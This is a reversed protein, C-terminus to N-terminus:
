RRRVTIEYRIMDLENGGRPIVSALTAVLGKREYEFSSGSFPDPPLSVEGVESLKQPLLGQHLAAYVRLAEVCQLVALNADLRKAVLRARDHAARLQRELQRRLVENTIKALGAQTEYEIAQEVHVLPAPLADLAYYLNPANERQVFQELEACMVSGVAAGILTHLLTPAQGLHRAMGLGTQLAQIGRGYKEQAMEYRAQLAILFAFERYQEQKDPTSGPKWQPWNCVTSRAGQAVLKLSAMHQQLMAEVQRLPLHEIQMNLWGTIKATQLEGPMAKAAKEYLAFADREVLSEKEPLLFPADVEAQLPAPHIVLNVERGLALGATGILGVLGAVIADRKLGPM